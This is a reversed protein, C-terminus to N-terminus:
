AVRPRRPLPQRLTKVYPTPHCQSPNPSSLTGGGTINGFMEGWGHYYNLYEQFDNYHNYTYFVYRDEPQVISKTDAYYRSYVLRAAGRTIANGDNYTHIPYRPDCDTGTTGIDIEYYILNGGCGRISPLMPEYPYNKTDGTFTSHNLRLYEGWPSNLPSEARSEVYNIPVDGWAYVYAAVEELSTYAAGFYVEFAQRGWEDLVWYSKRKNCYVCRTNHILGGDAQPRASALAPKQDPVEIWGSMMKHESRFMADVYSNSRKYGEYFQKKDANLYPDDALIEVALSNSILGDQDYLYFSTKGVADAKVIVDAMAGYFISLIGEDEIKWSFKDSQAGKYETIRLRGHSQAKMTNSPLYIYFDYVKLRLVNSRLGDATAIIDVSGSRKATVTSGVIDVCEGGAIAAFSVNAVNALAPQPTIVLKLSDGVMMQEEEASIAFSSLKPEVVTVLISDFLDSSSAYISTSGSSVPYILGADSVKAIAEDRSSFRIPERLHASNVSLQLTTGLELTCQEGNSIELYPIADVRSSSSEDAPPNCSVLPILGFFLAALRYLGKKRRRKCEM